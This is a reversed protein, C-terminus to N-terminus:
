EHKREEIEVSNLLRRLQALEAQTRIIMVIDTVDFIFLRDGDRQITFTRPEETM